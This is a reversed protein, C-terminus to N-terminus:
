PRREGIVAAATIVTRWRWDAGWGAAFRDTSCEAVVRDGQMLRSRAVLGQPAKALGSVNATIWLKGEYPYGEVSVDYAKKVRFPLRQFVMPGAATTARIQGM